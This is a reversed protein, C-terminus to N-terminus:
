SPFLFFLFLFNCLITSFASHQNYSEDEGKHEGRKEANRSILGRSGKEM